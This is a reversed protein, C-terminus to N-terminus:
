ICGINENLLRSIFNNDRPSSTRISLAFGHARPRLSYHADCRPPLLHHLLHFPNLAIAAFLKDDAESCITGLTPATEPHFGLATSRRLFAELRNRDAASTLGWWAPSAYSLKAVVTAQFVTHVADTPLGHHRLTRRAFLSQACSVLLHNVHQVVSFKRSITIGLAKVEEVRPISPVVPLPIVLARRCRPSVFVIEMSKVHNLRM